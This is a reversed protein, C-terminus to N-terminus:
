PERAEALRRHKMRAFVRDAIWPCRGVISMGYKAPTSTWVEARPKRLARVIAKAVREPPQMFREEAKDFLKAGGSLKDATDFFETKTGVPHVTTSQIGTGRLEVRMARGYHHQAAKTASYAAYYPTPLISLCSSCWLIHGANQSRMQSLAPRIINMSGFFNTEFIERTQAETLDFAAGEVGFGANAFVGYISGFLAVCQSVADECAGADNVDLTVSAARGGASEIESVLADLRDTRRAAALVPMGAGACALATAKGIGSIAGTILIPKDTLEIRAVAISGNV